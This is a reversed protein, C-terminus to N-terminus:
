EVLRSEDAAAWPTSSARGLVAAPSSTSGRRRAVAPAGARAGSPSSRACSTACGGPAGAGRARGDGGLHARHERSRRGVARRRGRRDDRGHRRDAAALAGIRRGPGALDLMQELDRRTEDVGPRDAKNIVFVDAIELLGAKNAQVADGWGPNVVVVTTDAAGAM